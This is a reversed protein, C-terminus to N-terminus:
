TKSKDLLDALRAPLEAWPIEAKPSNEPTASRLSKVQVVRRATEDEGLV